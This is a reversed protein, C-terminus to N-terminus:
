SSSHSPHHNFSSGNKGRQLAPPPSSKSANLSLLLVNTNRCHTRTGYKISVAISVRIDTQAVTASRSNRRRRQYMELRKFVSVNLAGSFHRTASGVSTGLSTPELLYTVPVQELIYRENRFHISACLVGFPFPMSFVRSLILICDLFPGTLLIHVSPIRPFKKHVGSRKIAVRAQLVCINLKFDYEGM